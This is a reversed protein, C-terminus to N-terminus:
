SDYFVLKYDIVKRYQRRESDYEDIFNELMGIGVAVSGMMGYFGSLSDNVASALAQVGDYTMDWCDVQLRMPNVKTQQGDLVLNESYSVIQYTIAPLTATEALTLPFISVVGDHTVASAIAPQSSLYGFVDPFTM